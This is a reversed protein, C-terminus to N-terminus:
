QTRDWNEAEDEALIEQPGMLDNRENVRRLEDLLPGQREIPAAELLKRIQCSCRVCFRYRRGHQIQWYYLWGGDRCRHCEYTTPEIEGRKIAASMAADAIDEIRRGVSNAM